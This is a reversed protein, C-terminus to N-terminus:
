VVPVPKALHLRIEALHPRWAPEGLHRANETHDVDQDVPDRSKRPATGQSVRIQLLPTVNERAQSAVRVIAIQKNPEQVRVAIGTTTTLANKELRDTMVLLRIRVDDANHVRAVESRQWAEVTM